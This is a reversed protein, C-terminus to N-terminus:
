DYWVVNAPGNDLDLHAVVGVAKEEASLKWVEVFDSESDTIAFYEESFVAPSVSNAAGGSGTTESLVLQERIAGTETLSFAAVYGPSSASRSRSSAYLYKPASETNVSFAVEDSWYASGNTFGSPILPYTTNTFSLMGTEADRSYVGIENASEFVVYAYRGQPHVAIHRPSADSPASIHQVEKVTTNDYSHVWIANGKDDASYIFKNDASLALGHVGANSDYTINALIADLAGTETVSIAQGACGTSYPAGFVTYPASSSPAIYNLNNCTEPITINSTQTLTLDTNISYSLYSSGATVYITKHRDDIAIWKSGDSASISTTINKTLSLTAAEDDFQLGYLQSGSFFGSFLNHKTALAQGIPLALISVLTPHM